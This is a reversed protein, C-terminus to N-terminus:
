SPPSSATITSSSHSTPCTAHIHQAWKPLMAVVSAVGDLLRLHTLSLSPASSSITTSPLVPIVPRDIPQLETSLNRYARAGYRRNM